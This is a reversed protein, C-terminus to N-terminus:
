PHATRTQASKVQLRSAASTEEGTFGFADSGGGSAGALAGLVARDREAQRVGEWGAGAEHAAAEAM